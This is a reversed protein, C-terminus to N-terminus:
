AKAKITTFKEAGGWDTYNDFIEIKVTSGEKLNLNATDIDIKKGTTPPSYIKKGYKKTTVDVYIRDGDNSTDYVWLKEDYPHFEVKARLHYSSGTKSFLEWKVARGGKDKHFWTDDASDDMFCGGNVKDAWRDGESDCNGTNVKTTFTMVSGYAEATPAAAVNAGAVLAAASAVVGIGRVRRMATNSM